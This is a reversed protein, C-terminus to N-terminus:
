PSLTFTPPDYSKISTNARRYRMFKVLPVGCAGLGVVAMGTVVLMNGTFECVKRYENWALSPCLFGFFGGGLLGLVEYSVDSLTSLVDITEGKRAALRSRYVHASRVFSGALASSVAFWLLTDTVFHGVIPLFVGGFLAIFLISFLTCFGARLISLLSWAKGLNM